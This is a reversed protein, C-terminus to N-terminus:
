EEDRSLANYMRRKPNVVPPPPTDDIVPEENEGAHWDIVQGLINRIQILRVRLEHVRETPIYHTIGEAKTLADVTALQLEDQM